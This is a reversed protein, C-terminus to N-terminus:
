KGRAMALDRTFDQKQDEGIDFLLSNIKAESNTINKDEPRFNNVAYGRWKGGVNLYVRIKQCSSLMAYDISNELIIKSDSMESIELDDQFDLLNSEVLVKVKLNKVKVAQM